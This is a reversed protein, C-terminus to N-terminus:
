QTAVITTAQTPATGTSSTAASVLAGPTTSSFKFLQLDPNGGQNVVALYGKTQDEAMAVPTTGTSFPSGQIATLSGDTGVSFASVTNGTRNAVYVYSGAGGALVAAPGLGAKYPSGQTETLTGNAGIALVRVANIGTETVYLYKGDPSVAVALDADLNQKPALVTNVPLLAGTSSNFSLTEVGGTGLAVYVYQENPTIALASASTSALGVGGSGTNTLAGTSSDIGFVYAEGSFASVALLWKGAPGVAMAAPSGGTFVPTGGHGLSISGDSAVTYVYIAGSTSGVYLLKNDPTMALSSPTLPSSYPSGNTSSLVGNALSFGAVTNLKPNSNAVYLYNGSAGTSGGGSGGGGTNTLPPFFQGCGALVLLGALLCWGAFRM